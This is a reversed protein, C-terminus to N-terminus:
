SQQGPTNWNTDSSPAGTGPTDAGVMANPLGLGNLYTNMAMMLNGALPGPSQVSDDLAKASTWLDAVLKVGKNKGDQEYSEIQQNYLDKQVGIIGAVPTTDSNTDHTQARQVNTQAELLGQQAQQTTIQESKLALDKQAM